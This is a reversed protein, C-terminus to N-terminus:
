RDTWKMKSELRSITDYLDRIQAQKLLIDRHAEEILKEVKAAEIADKGDKLVKLAGDTVSWYGGIFTMIYRDCYREIVREAEKEDLVDSVNETFVYELAMKDGGKKFYTFVQNLYVIPYKAVHFGNGDKHLIYIKKNKSLFEKEM